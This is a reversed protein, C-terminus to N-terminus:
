IKSYLKCRTLLLKNCISFLSAKLRQFSSRSNQQKQAQLTQRQIMQHVFMVKKGSKDSSKISSDASMSKFQASACISTSYYSGYRCRGKSSTTACATSTNMLSRRLTTSRSKSFRKFLRKAWRKRVRTTSPCSRSRVSQLSM